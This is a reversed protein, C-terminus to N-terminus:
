YIFYLRRSARKLGNNRAVSVGANEQYFYKIQKYKKVYKQCIEKSKDKSGDDILIIEVADTLQYVVSDLCEAIYRELNYIPIIISLIVSKM